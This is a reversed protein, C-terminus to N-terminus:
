EPLLPIDETYGTHERWTEWAEITLKLGRYSTMLKAQLHKLTKAQDNNLTMDSKDKLFKEVELITAKFLKKADEYSTLETVPYM